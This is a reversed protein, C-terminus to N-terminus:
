FRTAQIQPASFKHFRQDFWCGSICIIIFKCSHILLYQSCVHDIISLYPILGFSKNDLEYAMLFETIYTLLLYIKYAYFIILRKLSLSLFHNIFKCTTRRSADTGHQTQISCSTDTQGLMQSQRPVSTSCSM